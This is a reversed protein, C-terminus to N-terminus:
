VPKTTIYQDAVWGGQGTSIVIVSRWVIGDAVISSGVEVSTGKYLLGLITGSSSPTARLRVGDANITGTDSTQPTVISYDISSQITPNDSPTITVNEAFAPVASLSLSLVMALLSTFIKKKM